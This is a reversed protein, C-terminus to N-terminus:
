AKAHDLHTASADTTHASNNSNSRFQIKKAGASILISFKIFLDATHQIKEQKM